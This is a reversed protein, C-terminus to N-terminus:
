RPIAMLDHHGPDQDASEMRIATITTTGIVHQVPMLRAPSNYDADGQEGRIRTSTVTGTFDGAEPVARYSTRTPDADSQEQAIKTITQTGTAVTAPQSSNRPEQFRLLFSATM